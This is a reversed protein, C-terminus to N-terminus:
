RKPRWSRRAAVQPNTIQLMVRQMIPKTEESAWAKPLM